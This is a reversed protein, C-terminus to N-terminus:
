GGIIGIAALAALLGVQNSNSQGDVTNSSSDSAFSSDTTFSSNSADVSDLTSGSPSDSPFTNAGDASNGYICPTSSAAPAFALTFVSAVVTSLLAAQALKSKMTIEM